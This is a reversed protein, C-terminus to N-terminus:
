IQHFPSKIEFGDDDDEDTEERYRLRSPTVVGQAEMRRHQRERNPRGKVPTDDYLQNKKGRRVFTGADKMEPKEMSTESSVMVPKTFNDNVSSMSPIIISNTTNQSLPIPSTSTNNIFEKQSSPKVLYNFKVLRETIMNTPEKKVAAPEEQKVMVPEPSNNIKEPERTIHNIPEPLHNYQPFVPPAPNIIIPPMTNYGSNYSSRGKPSSSQKSRKQRNNKKKKETNIKINIVNKTKQSIKTKM